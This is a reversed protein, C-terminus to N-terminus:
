LGACSEKKSTYDNFQNKWDMMYNNWRYFGARWEREAEDINGTMELVKPFYLTWFRCQQARLKTYIRPSEINLTLYKQDTNKFAPWRTSNNQTGDPNGYKAFNAWHKMISRSLIEEAKTYNARRELPLGFVFEIEYGHMVGMWEPWPLQSSRHEFYYFFANNGLESLKKTFELAPCIINYDGLVDDLADRYKEARQDDLLDVYYFLISERGFESVGPFYMKLGEQFDKRTIISNNDKSFGPAGYVLFATGENKNVGVLIQAKKFQGLQLLTDPMDTLFDGDVIPGFNVSLLPDSPVVLVENLLVEQPDKNRLCKIIETENEKSCGIYKALTLTRNRAEDPSMVAWPANSSGSQLIARTFLPQSRPSLLHLSVSGAGASEGFLTVSKPNGGFAAINKQVWQLALQQDFLGMNGPVEPNGPLALFGLAGVRYNMSVVIVREVWALFKGDYVPLSSTGTQFGGGYIWIMVTTNKPKPTPVWVNLYLCDESLDTNPNWMESGPFGPFSQDTNQYCSNAYKTANWTDSWKTLFQPKKFRLRGLPPQAYPIGLFATVTGGLVPLNIGRVKGNKTTIIIDEETHSKGILVWFLLFRLLFRISIITRKSQMKIESESCCLHYLKCPTSIMYYKLSFCYAAAAGAQLNSQVSM